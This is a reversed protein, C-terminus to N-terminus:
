TILGDELNFVKDCKEITTKRHAIIVMTKDNFNAKINEMIKEETKLDLASTSEDMFFINPERYVARALAIRQREGGSLKLGDTGVRTDIGNPLDSIKESLNAINIAKELKVNNINEDLFNFAINKKISSDLLYINQSIYGIEKRWSDLNKFISEGKYFINGEKPELLGLMLHFLTSKGAGTKGTIGVKSGEEINMKINKLPFIKSEPYSFSINDVSFFTKKTQSNITKYNSKYYENKSKNELNIKNIEKSILNVSPEFMKMYTLSLTISSFAPIFRVVAIVILSLIPLINIFNENFGLYILSVIIITIISFLELFIRPLKEYFSFFYFNKEYTLIKKNFFSVVENEKRLIKLDKISGFAEYITQTINKVLEQNQISKKKITPKIKKLYFFMITGLFLCIALTTIPNVILLLSIIVLIALSERILAILHFFYTYIGGQIENSINRSLTSPNNKLHFFYSCNVYYSFLKNSLDIKLKKFFNGQLYTLFILFFNKLVFALVVFIGTLVIINKIITESIFDYGFYNNVKNTLFNQDLISSVFIPISGLSLFELFFMLFNLILILKLKSKDTDNLFSNLKKYM